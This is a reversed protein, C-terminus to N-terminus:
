LGAVELANVTVKMVKSYDDAQFTLGERVPLLSPYKKGNYVEVSNYEINKPTKIYQSYFNFTAYNQGIAIGSVTAGHSKSLDTSLARIQANSEASPDDGMVVVSKYQSSVNSVDAENAFLKKVMELAPIINTGDGVNPIQGLSGTQPDYLAERAMETASAMNNVVYTKTNQASDAFYMFTIARTSDTDFYGKLTDPHVIADHLGKMMLVLEDQDVSGSVDMVFVTHLDVPLPEKPIDEAMASSSHFSSLLAIGAAAIVQKQNKSSFM